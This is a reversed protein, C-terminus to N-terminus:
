QDRATNFQPDRPPHYFNEDDNSQVAPTAARGPMLMSVNSHHSETATCGSSLLSLSGAMMGLFILHLANM